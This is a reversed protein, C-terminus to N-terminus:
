LQFVVIAPPLWSDSDIFGHQVLSLVSDFLFFICGYQSFLTTRTESLMESLYFFLDGPQFFLPSILNPFSCLCLLLLTLSESILLPTLLSFFPIPFILSIHFSPHPCLSSLHVPFFDLCNSQMIGLCVFLGSFSLLSCVSNFLGVSINWMFQIVYFFFVFACNIYIVLCQFVLLCICSVSNIHVVKFM